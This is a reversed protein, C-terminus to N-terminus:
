LANVVLKIVSDSSSKSYGRYQMPYQQGDLDTFIEDKRYEFTNEVDITRSIDDAKQVFPVDEELYGITNDSETQKPNTCSFSILLILCLSFQKM